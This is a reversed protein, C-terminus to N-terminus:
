QNYCRLYKNKAYQIFSQINGITIRSNIAYYGGMISIVVYGINGVFGMMPPMMGSIFQSKWAVDYLKNNEEEFDSIMNDENNFARIVMQGSYMEEVKGNVNALYDQNKKFYHQSKKVVFSVIILSLPILLVIVLTMSINISLMMVLVGIITAISSIIQTASQNLNNSLNDADNTIISLTEGYTRKDFYSFPMKNIKEIIERRLKYATKQSINTMILGQVFSFLASLGYLIALGILISGVKAFNVGDGGTLKGVIGSFIETTANGLIKPGVISFITSGITFILAFIMAIKYESLYNWLKKFTGKLDKPKEVSAVVGPGGGPRPAVNNKKNSM